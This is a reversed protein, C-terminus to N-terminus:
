VRKPRQNRTTNENANINLYYNVKIKGKIREWTIPRGFRSYYAQENNLLWGFKKPATGSTIEAEPKQDGYKNFM